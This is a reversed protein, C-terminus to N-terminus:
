HHVGDAGTSVLLCRRHRATRSDLRRALAVPSDQGPARVQRLTAVCLPGIQSPPVGHTGVPPYLLRLRSPSTPLPGLACCACNIAYKVGASPPTGSHESREDDMGNDLVDNFVLAMHREPRIALRLRPFTTEGGVSGAPLDNLYILFTLHRRPKQEGCRM